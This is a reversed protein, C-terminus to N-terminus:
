KEHDTRPDNWEVVNKGFKEILDLKERTTCANSRILELGVYERMEKPLGKAFSSNKDANTCFNGM